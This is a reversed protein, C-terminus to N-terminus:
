AHPELARTFAFRAFSMLESGFWGSLAALCACVAILKVGFPLTQEQLQTVTQVLGVVLGVLTAVAVPVSSLLLIVWLAKNGANVLEDM